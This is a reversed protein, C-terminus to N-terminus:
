HTSPATLLRRAQAGALPVEWEKGQYARFMLMLWLVFCFAGYGLTLLLGVIVGLLPVVSLVASLISLAIWVVIMAVGIVISQMAHFRVFASKKEMVLFLIGTLPTLLYALAGALNPSLGAEQQTPLDSM